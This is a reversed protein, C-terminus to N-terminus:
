LRVDVRMVPGLCVPNIGPYPPAAHTTQDARIDSDDMWGVKRFQHNETRGEPIRILNIEIGELVIVGQRHAHKNVGPLLLGAKHALVDILKFISYRM